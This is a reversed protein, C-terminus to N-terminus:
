LVYRQIVSIIIVNQVADHACSYLPAACHADM